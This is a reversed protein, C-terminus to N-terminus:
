RVTEEGEVIVYDALLSTLSGLTQIGHLIHLEVVVVTGVGARGMEFSRVAEEVLHSRTGVVGEELGMRISEVEGVVIHRNGHHALSHM